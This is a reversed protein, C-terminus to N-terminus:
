LIIKLTAYEGKSSIRAVYMGQKLHSLDVESSPTLNKNHFVLKGYIDFLELQGNTSGNYILHKNYVYANFNHNSVTNIGVTLEEVDVVLYPRLEENDFEKTNFYVNETSGGTDARIMFSAVTNNENLDSILQNTVDFYTWLDEGTFSVMDLKTGVVTPKNASLLTSETWDTTTKFISISVPDGTLATSSSLKVKASKIRSADLTSIPFKIYGDFRWDGLTSYRVRMTNESGYATTGKAVKQYTDDTPAILISETDVDEEGDETVTFDRIFDSNMKQGLVNELDSSVTIKYTEDKQLETNPTFEYVTGGMASSWTGQAEIGSSEHIINVNQDFMIPDVESLFRVTIPAYPSLGLMATPLIGDHALIRNLGDTDVDDSNEKPYVSFVELSNIESPKLYNDFYKKFLVYRNEGTALDNGTGPYTHGLEEMWLALHNNDLDKYRKVVEPYIDWQNYEDKAGASTIMPVTFEDVYQNVRRTGNGAAAYSVDVTSSFGPWPQPKTNEVGGMLFHERGDANNLNAIRVASYSAKSIGMVGIKGDLNYDELHSNIYRVYSTVLALGNWDELSYRDFYKWVDNRALPNYCHDVNAWAYGTTLFGLQFISRYVRENTQNPAFSMQRPSNSAFNVLLPVNKSASGTPYILDMYMNYDIPNGNKDVMDAPDDVPTVGFMNVIENNYTDLIRDVSGEAGHDIINWIPINVKITYGEPVYFISKLDAEETSTEYSALLDPTSKHFDILHEELDPSTTPFTSCDVTVVIFGQNELDDIIDIDTESGIREQPLNQLYFVVPKLTKQALITAGSGGFLVCMVILLYSIRNFIRM